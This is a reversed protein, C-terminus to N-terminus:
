EWSLLQPFCFHQLTFTSAIIQKQKLFRKFRFDNLTNLWIYLEIVSKILQNLEHSVEGCNAKQRWRIKQLKLFCKKKRAWSLTM